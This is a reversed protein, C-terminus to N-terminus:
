EDAEADAIADRLVEHVDWEDGIRELEKLAMKCAKLLAFKDKIIKARRAKNIRYIGEPTNWDSM